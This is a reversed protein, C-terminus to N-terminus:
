YIRDLTKESITIDFVVEETDVNEVIIFNEEKKTREALEKKTWRIGHCHKRADKICAKKSTFIESEEGSDFCDIWKYKNM